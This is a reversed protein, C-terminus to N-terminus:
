LVFLFFCFTHKKEKKEKSLLVCLALFIFSANIVVMIMMPAANNTDMIPPMTPERPPSEAHVHRLFDSAPHIPNETVQNKVLTATIIKITMPTPLKASCGVFPPGQSGMEESPFFNPIWYTPRDKNGCLASVAALSTKFKEKILSDM